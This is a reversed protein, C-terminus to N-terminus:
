QAAEPRSAQAAHWLNPLWDNAYGSVFAKRGGEAPYVWRQVAGINAGYVHISVSTRDAHANRVLHIDGIAPSVAEVDGLQLTVPPGQPVPRGNADPAYPQSVEQGRLMGILGWVTHDHVPTRQGPGWVFSVVSFRGLPDAHLLYQRYHQADPQALADPLWDDHAVLDALHRRVIPLLTAEDAHQEVARTTALVFQRLVDLPMRTEPPPAASLAM